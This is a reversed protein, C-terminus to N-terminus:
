NLRARNAGLQRAGEGITRGHPWPALRGAAEAGTIDSIPVPADREWWYTREYVDPRVEPDPMSFARYLAARAPGRLWKAYARELEHYTVGDRLIMVVTGDPLEESLYPVSRPLTDITM